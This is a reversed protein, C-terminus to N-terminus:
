QWPETAWLDKYSQEIATFEATADETGMTMVPLQMDAAQAIVEPDNAAAVFCDSLYQIIAPDTGEPVGIARLNVQVVDYGCEQYTPIDPYFESREEAGTALYRVSGEQEFTHADYVNLCFADCYGGSVATLVSSEGDFPIINFECGAAKQLQKLALGESTTVSTVGISVSGPNTKAAEVLEQLSTYPSDAGVGIVGPDNMMTAVYDIEDTGYPRDMAVGAILMATPCFGITYGDPESEALKTWGVDGSAGTVYDIVISKDWGEMERVKEALLRFYVDNGSGATFPYIYTIEKSPYGEPLSSTESGSVAASASSRPASQAAQSSAAQSDAGGCATLSLALAAATALAFYRKYM